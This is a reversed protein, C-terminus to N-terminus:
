RDLEYLRLASSAFVQHGYEEALRRSFPYENTGAPFEFGQRSTGSNKVPLIVYRIGLDAVKDHFQEFDTLPLYAQLHSDTTYCIRNMPFCGFSSMGFSQYLAAVLIRSDRPTETRVYRFVQWFGDDGHAEDLTDTGLALALDQGLAKEKLEYRAQAGIAILLLGIPVYPLWTKGRLLETGIVAAVLFYCAIGPLWYRFLLGTTGICVTTYIFAFVIIFRLAPKRAMAFLIASAVLLGCVAAVLLLQREGVDLKSGSGVGWSFYHIYRGFNTAHEATWDATPILGSFMPYVPNGTNIGNRVLWPLLPVLAVLGFRVLTWVIEGARAGGMRLAVLVAGAWIVGVFVSTFKFSAAFGTALALATLLERRRTDQWAVFLLMAIAAMWGAGLDVFARGIIFPLNFLPTQILLVSIVILGAIWSRLRLACLLLALFMGLAASFHILKAAVPNAFSLAITYLAEFGMSANTHTYTPLYALTGERLWRMPASLHYGDDDGVDQFALAHVLHVALLLALLGVWALAARPLSATTFGRVARVASLLVARLERVLLLSLVGIGVRIWLPHLLGFVALTVPIFQLAGTGFALAVLQQEVRDLPSEALGIWHLLRRGLALALWLFLIIFTLGSLIPPIGHMFSPLFDAADEPM